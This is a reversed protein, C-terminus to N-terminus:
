TKATPEAPLRRQSLAEATVTQACCKKSCPPMGTCTTSRHRCGVNGEVQLKHLTPKAMVDELKPRPNKSDLDLIGSLVTKGPNQGTLCEVVCHDPIM